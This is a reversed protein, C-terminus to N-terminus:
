KTINPARNTSILILSDVKGTKPTFGIGYKVKKSGFFVWSMANEIVGLQPAQLNTFTYHDSFSM